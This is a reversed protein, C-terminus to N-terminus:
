SYRGAFIFDYYEGEIEKKIDTIVFILSSDDAVLVQTYFDNNKYDMFCSLCVNGTANAFASQFFNLSRTIDYVRGLRVNVRANFNRLEIITSGKKMTLPWKLEIWTYNEYITTNAIMPEQSISWGREGYREIKVCSNLKDIVYNSIQNQIEDRSPATNEGDFIYYPIKISNFQTALPEPQYDSGSFTIFSANSVAFTYYGGQRGVLIIGETLTQELCNSIYDNLAEINAAPMIDAQDVRDKSIIFVCVIAVILFLALIIFLTVQAGKNERKRM